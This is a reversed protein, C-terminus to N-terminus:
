RRVAELVFLSAALEDFPLKLTRLYMYPMLVPGEFVSFHRRPWKLAAELMRMLGRTTLEKTELEQCVREAEFTRQRM